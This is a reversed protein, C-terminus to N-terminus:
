KRAGGEQKMRQIVTQLSERFDPPPPTNEAEHLWEAAEDDSLAALTEISHQSIGLVLCQSGVKVVAIRQDRGLSLQALVELRRGKDQRIGMRASWVGLKRTCWYALVLVRGTILLM